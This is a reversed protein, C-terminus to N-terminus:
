VIPIARATRVPALARPQRQGFDATRATGDLSSSKHKSNLREHSAASPPQAATLDAGRSHQM